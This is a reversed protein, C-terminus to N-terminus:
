FLSPFGHSYATYAKVWASANPFMLNVRGHLVRIRTGHFKLVVLVTCMTFFQNIKGDSFM